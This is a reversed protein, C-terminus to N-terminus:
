SLVFLLAMNHYFLTKECVAVARVQKKSSKLYKTLAHAFSLNVM